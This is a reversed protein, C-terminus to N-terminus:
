LTPLLGADVLNLVVVAVFCSYITIKALPNM